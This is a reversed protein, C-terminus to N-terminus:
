RGAELHQLRLEHDDVKDQSALRDILELKTRQLEERTVLEGLREKVGDFERWTSRALAELAGDMDRVESLLETLKADLGDLKGPLEKIAGIEKSLADIRQELNKEM